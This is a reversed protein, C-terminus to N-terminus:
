ICTDQFTFSPLDFIKKNQKEKNDLQNVFVDFIQERNRQFHIKIFFIPVIIKRRCVELKIPHFNESSELIKGISMALIIYDPRM